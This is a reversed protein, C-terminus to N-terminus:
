PWNPQVLSYNFLGYINYEIILTNPHISTYEHNDIHNNLVIKILREGALNYEAVKLDAVIM